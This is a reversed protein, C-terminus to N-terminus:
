PLLLLREKSLAPNYHIFTHNVEGREMIEEEAAEECVECLKYIWDREGWGSQEVLNHWVTYQSFYTCLHAELVEKSTIYDLIGKYETTNLMEYLAPACADSKFYLYRAEEALSMKELDFMIGFKQACDSLCISWVPYSLALIWICRDTELFFVGEAVKKYRITMGWPTNGPPIVGGFYEPYRDMCFAAYSYLSDNTELQLNHQIKYRLVEYEVLEYGSGDSECEFVLIDDYKKGYGAVEKSIIEPVAKQMVVYIERYPMGEKVEIVIYFVGPCEEEIKKVEGWYKKNFQLPLGHEGNQYEGKYGM